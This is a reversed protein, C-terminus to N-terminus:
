SLETEHCCGCCGGLEARCAPANLTSAVSRRHPHGCLVPRPTACTHHTTRGDPCLAAPHHLEPCTDVHTVVGGVGWVLFGTCSACRADVAPPALTIPATLTTV